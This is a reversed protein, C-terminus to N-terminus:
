HPKADPTERCNTSAQHRITHKGSMNSHRPPVQEVPHRGGLRLTGPSAYVPPNSASPAEIGDAGM